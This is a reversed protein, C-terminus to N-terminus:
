RCASAAEPVKWDLGVGRHFFSPGALKMWVVGSMLLHVQQVLVVRVGGTPRRRALLEDALRPGVDMEDALFVVREASLSKAGYHWLDLGGLGGLTSCAGDPGWNGTIVSDARPAQDRRM